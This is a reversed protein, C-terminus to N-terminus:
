RAARPRLAAQRSVSRPAPSRGGNSSPERSAADARNPSMACGAQAMTADHSLHIPAGGGDLAAEGDGIEGLMDAGLDATKGETVRVVFLHDRADAGRANVSRKQQEAALGIERRGFIKGEGLAEASAGIEMRQAVVAQGVMVLDEDDAVDM